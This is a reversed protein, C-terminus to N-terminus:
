MVFRGGPHHHEYGKVDLVLNDLIMLQRKKEFVQHEFQSPSMAELKQAAEPTVAPVLVKTFRRWYRFGVGCGIFFGYFLNVNLYGFLSLWKPGGNKHFYYTQIGGCTTIGAM